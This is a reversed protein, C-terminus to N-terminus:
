ASASEARQAEIRDMYREAGAATKFARVITKAGSVMSVFLIRNSQVVSFGVREAPLKANVM